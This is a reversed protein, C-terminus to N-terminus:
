PREEEVSLARLRYTRWARKLFLRLARIGDTGPAPRLRITFVPQTLPVPQNNTGSNQRNTGAGTGLGPNKKKIPHM